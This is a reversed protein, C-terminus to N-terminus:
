ISESPAIPLRITFTSGAGVESEVEITGGHREIIQSSIFLGLGTGGVSRRAEDGRAFPQFLNAQEDDSIGIGSDSVEVAVGDGERRVEVRVVGGEPSYKIANSILNTIVQDLRSADWVGEVPEEAEFILVHTDSRHMPQDFRELCRRALATLDFRETNLELRGRQIQTADLLDEVLTELRGVEDQLQDILTLTRAPDADARRFRRALLQSSAKVTTLPTRLEHSAISLFQERVKIAEQSDRYLRANEIALAARVALEGLLGQEDATYPPNDGHRATVLIGIVVGHTSLPVAMVTHIHLSSADALDEPRFVARRTEDPTTDIALPASGALVARVPSGGQSQIAGDILRSFRDRLDPSAHSAAVATIRERETEIIYIGAFGGLAQVVHQAVTNVVQDLDLSAEAFAATAESLTRQRNAQAAAQERSREAEARSRQEESYLRARELAQACQQALAVLFARDSADFVRDDEFGVTMAGLARDGIVLPIAAVAGGGIMSRERDLHPYRAARASYSELFLPELSTIADSPPTVVDLSFTHWSTGFEELYGVARAIELTENDDMLLALMGRQANLTTVGLDVIVEAVEERTLSRALASTVSQLRSTQEAVREAFRRTIQEARFLRANEVAVAARRGIDEALALDMDTFRRGHEGTIFSIAGITAGHVSLPVCMWSTLKLPRTVALLSEPDTTDAALVEPDVEPYLLSTGSRIVLPVGTPADPDIAIRQHMLSSVGAHMPDSFETALRRIAGDESVLYVICWDALYPVALRAVSALTEEYDLSNALIDSAEALFRLRDEAQRRSTIETIAGGFGSIAGSASKVPYFSALWHRSGGPQGVTSSDIELDLVPRGTQLISDFVPDLLPALGPMTEDIRKGIHKNAPTGTLEAFVDNVRVFCQELDFLVIGVPASALVTELLALSEEREQLAEQAAHFLRANDVAVAARRAVEEGLAVDDAGFRWSADARVFEIAGIVRDRAILPVTLGSRPHLMELMRLHAEDQAIQEWVSEDVVEILRSRGERVAELAPHSRGERPPFRRIMDSLVTALATDAHAAAIRQLSGAPDVLDVICWDAFYPVALGAVSALTQEYDLSTTLIGGADMLFRAQEESRKRATIDRVFGNFSPPGGTLVPAVSLEVPFEVGDSRMATTEFRSGIITGEGTGLYREIGARHQQRLSPPIILGALEQGVAQERPIGFMDSAAPNFEQIVGHHDMQIMADLATALVARYRSESERLELIARARELFRGVQVGISDAVDRLAEDPERIDHSLFEMVGIVDGAVIIPFALAGHLGADAAIVRRLYGENLAVDPIWQVARSEATMGPLGTGRDFTLHSSADVFGSVRREDATWTLKFSLGDSARDVAWYLGLVWGMGECVVRLIETLAEDLARANELVYSVEHKIRNHREAGLPGEQDTAHSPM